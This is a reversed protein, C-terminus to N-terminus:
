SAPPQPLGTLERITSQLNQLDPHLPQGARVAKGLARVADRIADDSFSTAHRNDVLWKKLPPGSRVDPVAATYADLCEGWSHGDRLLREAPLYCVADPECMGFIRIRDLRAVQLAALGLESVWKAEGTGLRRLEHLTKRAADLDGAATHDRAALWAQEVNAGLNDLVVLVPASTGNFLLEAEAVTRLGKAGRMAYVSAMAQALADGLCETFLLQDHLGEVLVALRMMDLLAGPTLGLRDRTFERDLADLNTIPVPQITVQGADRDVLVPAVQRADLLAPSHTAVISSAQHSAMAAALGSAMRQEALRHLGSEPEDCLFVLPIDEGDALSLKIALEAWRRNAASLAALPHVGADRALRVEWRPRRGLLWERQDGLRLELESEVSPLVSRYTANATAVLAALPSHPDDSSRRVLWTVSEEDLEGASAGDLVKVLPTETHGVTTLPIALWNPLASVGRPLEDFYLDRDADNLGLYPAAEPMNDLLENLWARYESPPVSGPELERTAEKFKLWKHHQAACRRWNDESLPMSPAVGWRPRGPSGEAILTFNSGAALLEILDETDSDRATDTARLGLAQLLLDELPVEGPLDQSQMQQVFDSDLAGKKYQRELVAGRLNTLDTSVAETLVSGALSVGDGLQIHLHAAAQRDVRDNPPRVGTLACKVAQLVRSKGAGNLGYLATIDRDFALHVGRGIPGTGFVSVGLIRYGMAEIAM